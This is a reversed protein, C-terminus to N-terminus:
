PVRAVRVGVARALRAMARDATALPLGALACVALHLADLTRFPVEFGGIWDRALRFHRREVPVRAYYGTDLHALFVGTVRRGDALLMARDRVKRAIASVVELEALDSVVPQRLRRIWREVARSM